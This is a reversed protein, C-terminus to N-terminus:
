VPVRRVARLPNSTDGISVTKGDTFRKGHNFLSGNSTSSHLWTSTNFQQVGGSQFLVATTTAPDGSTYYPSPRPPISYPNGGYEGGTDNGGYPKLNYYCLELEYQSPLYWDNYGGITLGKCFLSAPNSSNQAATNLNGNIPDYTSVGGTTKFVRSATGGSSPAVVLYHTPVGDGNVSFVGAYYGGGFAQGIVSPVEKSNSLLGLNRASATSRMTLLPM